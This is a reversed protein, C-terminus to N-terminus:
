PLEFSTICKYLLLLVLQWINTTLCVCVTCFSLLGQCFVHKRPNASNEDSQQFISSSKKIYFSKTVRACFLLYKVVFNDLVFCVGLFSKFSTRSLWKKHVCSSTTFTKKLKTIRVTNEFNNFIFVVIWQQANFWLPFSLTTERENELLEHLISCILSGM